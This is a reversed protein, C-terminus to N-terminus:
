RGGAVDCKGIACDDTLVGADFAEGDPLAFAQTQRHPLRVVDRFDFGISPTHDNPSTLFQGPM